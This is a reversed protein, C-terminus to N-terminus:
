KTHGRYGPHPGPGFIVPRPTAGDIVTATALMVAGALLAYDLAVGLRFVGIAGYLVGATVLAINWPRSHQLGVVLTLGIVVMLTPCPLVGFPSAYAYPMWRSTELFHPYMWGFVVLLAGPGFLASPVFLAPRVSFARAM